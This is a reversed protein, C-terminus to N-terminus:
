QNAKGASTQGRDEICRNRLSLAFKYPYTSASAVTPGETSNPWIKTGRATPRESRQEETHAAMCLDCDACFRCDLAM